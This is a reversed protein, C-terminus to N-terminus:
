NKYINVLKQPLKWIWISKNLCSIVIMSCDSSFACSTLMSEHDLTYLCVSSYPSWIRAQRDTAVSCLIDSNHPSFRVFNVNGGHGILCRWEIVEVNGYDM